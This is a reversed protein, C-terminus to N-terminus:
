GRASVSDWQARPLLGMEPKLGELLKQRLMRYAQPDQQQIRSMRALFRDVSVEDPATVDGKLASIQDAM